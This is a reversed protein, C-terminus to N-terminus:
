QSFTVNYTGAAVNSIVIKQMSFGQGVLCTEGAGTPANAVKVVGTKLTVTITANELTIGDADIQVGNRLTPDIDQCTLTDSTGSSTWAITQRLLATQSM